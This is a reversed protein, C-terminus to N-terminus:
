GDFECHVLINKVCAARQQKRERPINAIHSVGRVEAPDEHTVKWTPGERCSTTTDRIVSKLPTPDFLNSPIKSLVRRAHFRFNKLYSLTQDPEVLSYERLDLTPPTWAFLSNVRFLSDLSFEENPVDDVIYCFEKYEEYESAHELFHRFTKRALAFDKFGSLWSAFAPGQEISSFFLYKPSITKYKVHQEYTAIDVIFSHFASRLPEVMKKLEDKVMGHFSSYKKYLRMAERKLCHMNDKSFDIDTIPNVWGLRQVKNYPVNDEDTFRSDNFNCDREEYSLSQSIGQYV